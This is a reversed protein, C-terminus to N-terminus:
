LRRAQLQAQLAAQEALQRSRVRTYFTHSASADIMALVVIWLLLLLVALWYLALVLPDRLLVGLLMAVAVGALLMSIQTRRRHRRAHFDAEHPEVESAQSTRYARAQWLYTGIAVGVLLAAVITTSVM